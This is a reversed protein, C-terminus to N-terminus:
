FLLDHVLPLEKEQISKAAKRYIIPLLSLGIGLTVFYKYKNPICKAVYKAGWVYIPASFSALLLSTIPMNIDYMSIIGAAFAVEELSSDENAFNVITQIDEM